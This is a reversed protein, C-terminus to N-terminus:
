PCATSPYSAATEVWGGERESYLTFHLERGDCPLKVTAAQNPTEVATVEEGDVDFVVLHHAAARADYSWRVDVAGAPLTTGAPPFTIVASGAPATYAEYSAKEAVWGNPLLSWLHAVVPSGDHPLGAVFIETQSGVEADYYRSPDEFTGVQLRYGDAGVDTWSFDVGTAPLTSDSVPTLLTAASPPPPSPTAVRFQSTLLATQNLTRANDAWGAVGTAAGAVSIAPNSWHNIRACGDCSYAMITRYGHTPVQLGHSDAYYGPGQANDHDHNAGMNHGLEHGFTYAGTAYDRAVVSFAWADFFPAVGNVLQYGIGAYPGVTDVLLVVHDAGHADRLAHIEDMYGDSTGRLRSLTDSWDFGSEDYATQARHVVNLEVDVGSAEYGLNTEEVALEIVADMAAASGVGAMAQPTYVVLLDVTTIADGSPSPEAVVSWTPSSGPAEFAPAVIPGEPEIASEDREIVLVAADDVSLIQFLGRPTRVTGAPMGDVESVVVEGAEGNPGHVAGVWSRGLAGLRLARRSASVVTDDFLRLTLEDPDSGTVDGDIAARRARIVSPHWPAVTEGDGLWSGEPAGGNPASPACASVLLLLPLARRAPGM